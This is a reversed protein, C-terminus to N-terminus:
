KNKNRPNNKTIHLFNHINLHTNKRHEVLDCLIDELHLRDLHTVLEKVNMGRAGIELLLQQSPSHGNYINQALREVEQARCALLSHFLNSLHM